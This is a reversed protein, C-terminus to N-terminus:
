KSRSDTITTRVGSKRKGGMLTGNKGSKTWLHRVGGRHAQHGAWLHHHHNNANRIKRNLLTSWGTFVLGNLSNKSTLIWHTTPIYPRLSPNGRVRIFFTWHTRNHFPFQKQRRTRRKEERRKGERGKGERGKGERGKGERRKEERRKEREKVWIRAKFNLNSDFFAINKSPPLPGPLARPPFFPFFIFFWFFFIWFLLGESRDAIAPVGQGEVYQLSKLARTVENYGPRKCMPGKQKNSDLSRLHIVNNYRARQWSLANHSIEFHTIFDLYQVWEDTWNHALKSAWYVEDNQWRDWILTYMDRKTADKEHMELKIITKTGPILVANREERFLQHLAEFAERIRDM